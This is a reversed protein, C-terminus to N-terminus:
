AARSKGNLRDLPIGTDQHIDILKDKPLGRIRWNYVAMPQKYGFRAQVAQVGGYKNIVEDALTMASILVYQKRKQLV